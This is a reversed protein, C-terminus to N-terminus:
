QCAGGLAAAYTCGTENCTAVCDIGAPATLTYDFEGGACPVIAVPGSAIQTVPPWLAGVVTSCMDAGGAFITINVADSIDCCLIGGPVTSSATAQFAAIRARTRAAGLSVLVISALIGIIAIVVLLEILTFGKKEM